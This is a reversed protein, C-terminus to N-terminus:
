GNFVKLSAIGAGNKILSVVTRWRRLNNLVVYSDFGSGKHAILYLNFKVTKNIIRKAKRKFQLVYDFMENIIDFRKFVICDKRCKGQERETIDGDHEGSIKNLRYICTSYPVCKITDFTEIDHVVMNTLQSQVKKPKYEYKILSEVRKDSKVTDVVKFNPKLEDEIAKNFSSGNSKLTLSFNNNITPLDRNRQTINRPCVRFGNYYGNNIIYNGCFPQSGASTMVNSRRQEIRVFTSFENMYNKGRLYNMCKSFCNGSIPNYCNNGIYEVFDQKFDTGRVYQFRNAEIFDPTNLKYLWGTFIFDESNYSGNDIANIYIEFGDVNEFMINTKQEREGFLM